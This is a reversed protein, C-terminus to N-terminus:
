VRALAESEHTVSNMAYSDGTGGSALRTQSGTEVNTTQMIQTDSKFLKRRWNPSHDPNSRPQNVDAVVGHRRLFVRFAPLCSAVVGVNAESETWAHSIYKQGGLDKTVMLMVYRGTAAVMALTGIFCIFVVAKFERKRLRLTKLLSLPILLVIRPDDVDTGHRRDFISPGPHSVCM